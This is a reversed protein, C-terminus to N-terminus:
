QRKRLFLDGLLLRYQLAEGEITTGDPVCLDRHGIFLREPPRKRRIWICTNVWPDAVPKLLSIAYKPDRPLGAGAFRSEHFKDGVGRNSGPKNSLPCLRAFGYDGAM